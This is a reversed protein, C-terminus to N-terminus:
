KTQYLDNVKTAMRQNNYIPLIEYVKDWNISRLNDFHYDNYTYLTDLFAREKSAISMEDTIDVGQSNTLIENKLKKYSYIQTEITIDRTTYSALFIPDYVQFILGERALVTEFSIYAPVFIKTALELRSYNHSKAYLGKRIRYLDGKKIYYSMRVRAASTSQSQWLLSIDKSTFVTRNSKLITSLYDGKQM